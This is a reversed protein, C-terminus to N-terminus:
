SSSLLQLGLFQSLRNNERRIIDVVKLYTQQRLKLSVLSLKFFAFGKRNVVREIERGLFSFSQIFECDCFSLGCIKAGKISKFVNSREKPM